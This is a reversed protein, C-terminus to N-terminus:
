VPNHSPLYEFPGSHAQIAVVEKKAYRGDGYPPQRIGEDNNSGDGLPPQGADVKQGPLACVVQLNNEPPKKVIIRQQQSETALL